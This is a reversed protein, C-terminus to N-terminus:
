LQIIKIFFSVPFMILAKSCNIASFKTLVFNVYKVHKSDEHLKLQCVEIEESASTVNAINRNKIRIHVEPKGSDLSYVKQNIERILFHPYGQKKIELWEMAMECNDDGYKFFM